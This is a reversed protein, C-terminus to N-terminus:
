VVMKPGMKPERVQEHPPALCVPPSVLDLCAADKREAGRAASLGSSQCRPHLAEDLDFEAM